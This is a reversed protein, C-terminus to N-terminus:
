PKYGENIHGDNSHGDIQGDNYLGFKSIFKVDGFVLITYTPM